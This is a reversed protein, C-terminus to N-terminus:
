RPEMPIDTLNITTSSYLSVWFHKFYKPNVNTSLIVERLKPNATMNSGASANRAGQLRLDQIRGTLPDGDKSVYQIEAGDPGAVGVSFHLTPYNTAIAYQWRTEEQGLDLKKVGVTTVGKLIFDVGGSSVRSGVKFLGRDSVLPRFREGLRVSGAKAKEPVEVLTYLRARTSSYTIRIPDPPSAGGWGGHESRIVNIWTGYQRSSFLDHVIFRVKLGYRQTWTIKGGRYLDLFEKALEPHAKGDQDWCSVSTVGGGCVGALRIEVDTLNGSQRATIEKHVSDQFAPSIAILVSLTLLKGVITLVCCGGAGTRM